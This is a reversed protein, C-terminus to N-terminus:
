VCSVGVLWQRFREVINDMIDKTIATVGSSGTAM